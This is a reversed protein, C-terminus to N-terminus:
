HRCCSGILMGEYECQVWQLVLGFLAKCVICSLPLLTAGLHRQAGGRCQAGGRRVEM